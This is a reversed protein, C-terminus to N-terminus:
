ITQKGTVIQNEYPKLMDKLRHETARRDRISNKALSTKVILGVEEDKFEEVFWKITNELNKRVIWTGVTLFNFDYKLDLNIKEQDVKKVPYNVVEIPCNVKAVFEEGTSNNTAQYSTNEFAYKAHESIVIIKDMEMSHQMWLPSIKTTETGATAGINYDALKEWEQPITVQISINFRGGAQTYHMTKSLLSDIWEREENVDSIWSTAGWNTNILFVDFAEPKSKLSRLIFRTHEGYGSHSLAPGKVLVTKM